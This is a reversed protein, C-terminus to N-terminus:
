SLLREFDELLKIHEATTLPAQSFFINDETFRHNERREIIFNGLVRFANPAIARDYDFKMSSIEVPPFEHSYVRQLAANYAAFVPHLTLLKEAPAHDFEIALQSLYLRKGVMSLLVRFGLEQNGWTLLDDLFAEASDTTNASVVLGDSWITFDHIYYQEGLLKLKGTEFKFGEDKAKTISNSLSPITAFEYRQAVLPLADPLYFGERPLWEDINILAVARGQLNSNIKM